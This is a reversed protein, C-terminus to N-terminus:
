VPAKRTEIEGYGLDVISIVEVLELQFWYREGNEHRYEFCFAMETADFGGIFHDSQFMDDSEIQAWESEAKGELSIEAFIDLLEKSVTLKM